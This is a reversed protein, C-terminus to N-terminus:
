IKKLLMEAIAIDEPFTIKINTYTGPVIHINIGLQEVVSADDTFEPKYEQEYAKNLIDSRFVQPTQVLYIEDRNLAASLENKVQRISDRSQVAVIANGNIAAYQYAEDIVEASTLPRVADHIAIVSGGEILSLGNKVSHFRTEGGNTVTHPVTFNHKRCLEDWYQRHAQPLVLIIQPQSQSHYFANITHMLVPLGNLSLFQKPIAAQMRMGSGGAVIIVHNKFKLNEKM